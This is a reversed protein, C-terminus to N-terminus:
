GRRGRGSQERSAAVHQNAAIADQFSRGVNDMDEMALADDLSM